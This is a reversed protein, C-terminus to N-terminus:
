VQVSDSVGKSDTVTFLPTGPRSKLKDIAIRYKRRSTTVSLSLNNRETWHGSVKAPAKDKLGKFPFLVYACDYPLCGQFRFGVSPTPVRYGPFRCTFGPIERMDMVLDDDNPPIATIQINADSHTNQLRRLCDGLHLEKHPERLETDQPNYARIIRNDDTHRSWCTLAQSNIGLRTEPANFHFFTEAVEYFPISNKREPWTDSARAHDVVVWFVIDSDDPTVCCLTRRLVLSEYVTHEVCVAQIRPKHMVFLTNTWKRTIHRPGSPKFRVMHLVNHSEAAQDKSYYPRSYTAVGPDAILSRGLGYINISCIDSHAHNFDSTYALMGYHSDTGKGAGLVQLGSRKLDYPEQKREEFPVDPLDRWTRYGDLGMDWIHREMLLLSSTPTGANAKYRPENFFAAAVNLIEHAEIQHEHPMVTAADGIRPYKGDKRLVACFLDFSRRSLNWLPKPIEMDAAKMFQVNRFILNSNVTQYGLGERFYSDETSIPFCTCDETLRTTAWERWKRSDKFAPFCLAIMNPATIFHLPINFIFDNYVGRYCVDALVLLAKCFFLRTDPDTHTRFFPMAICFEYGIHELAYKEYDHSNPQWPFIGPHPVDDFDPFKEFLNNFIAIAAQIYKEEHTIHFLRGLIHAAGGRSSMTSAPWLFMIREDESEQQSTKKKPSSLLYEDAFKKLYGIQNQFQNRAIDALLPIEADSLYHTFTDEFLVRAAELAAAKYRRKEKLSSARKMAKFRFDIHELFEKDSMNTRM